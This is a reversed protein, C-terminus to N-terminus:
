RSLSSAGKKGQDPGKKMGILTTMDAATSIWAGGLSSFFGTLNLLKSRLNLWDRRTPPQQHAHKATPAPKFM